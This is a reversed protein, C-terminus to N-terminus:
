SIPSAANFVPQYLGFICIASAASSTLFSLLIVWRRWKLRNNMKMPNFWQLSFIGLCLIGLLISFWPKTVIQTLTPLSGGFGEFMEHFALAIKPFFFLGIINGAVFIIGIWDLITFENKNGSNDMKKAM